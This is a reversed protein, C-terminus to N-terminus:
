SPTVEVQIENRRSGPMTWPPDYRALRPIGVPMLNKSRIWHLLEETKKKIKSQTTFGSFSVLAYRTAPLERLSVAENNPTPLNAMTYQSPMYFHIRWSEAFEMSRSIDDAETSIPATMIIMEAGPNPQVIVPSTMAIKESTDKDFIESKHNGGFIYNAILKFGERSATDMNGQVVTEAITVASYERIECNGEQVLLEFKPQETTM